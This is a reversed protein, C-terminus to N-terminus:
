CRNGPLDALGAAAITDLRTKAWGRGYRLRPRNEPLLLKQVPDGPLGRSHREVAVAVLMRRRVGSPELGAERDLEGVPTPVPLPCGTITRSAQRQAVDLGKISSASAGPMWTGAADAVARSFAIFVARLDSPACGWEIASIASSM